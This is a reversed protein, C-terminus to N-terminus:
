NSASMAAAGTKLLDPETALILLHFATTIVAADYAPLQGSKVFPTIANAYSALRKSIGEDRSDMSGDEPAPQEITERLAMAFMEPSVFDEFKLM